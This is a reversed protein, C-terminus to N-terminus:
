DFKEGLFKWRFRKTSQPLCKRISNEISENLM